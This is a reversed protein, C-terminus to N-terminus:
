AAPMTPLEQDMRQQLTRVSLVRFRRHRHPTHVDVVKAPLAGLLSQGIPSALSVHGAEFDLLAGNLLTYTERVGSDLDEVVVTSGYGAGRLPLADPSLDMWGAAVQGFFRVADQLRDIHAGNRALVIRSLHELLADLRERMAEMHATLEATGNTM